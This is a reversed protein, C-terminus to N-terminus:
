SSGIPRTESAGRPLPSTLLMVPEFMGDPGDFGVAECPLPFRARALATNTTVMVPTEKELLVKSGAKGHRVGCGVTM